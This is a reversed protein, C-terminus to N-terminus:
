PRPEGQTAPERPPANEPGGRRRGGAEPRGERERQSPPMLQEPRLSEAGAPRHERLFDALAVREAEDLEGDGNKDFWPWLPPFQSIRPAIERRRNQLDKRAEKAEEPDLRGNKNRDFRRVVDPPPPANPDRARGDPGGAGGAGGNGGAKGDPGIPPGGRGDERPMARDRMHQRQEETLLGVFEGYLEAEALRRQRVLDAEQDVLARVRELDPEAKRVEEQLDQRVVVVSDGFISNQQQQRKQLGEVAARQNADLRLERAVRDLWPKGEPVMPQSQPQPKHTAPTATSRTKIFGILVAVNFVLSIVLLIFLVRVSM